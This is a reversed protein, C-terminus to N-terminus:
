DDEEEGRKGKKKGLFQSVGKFLINATRVNRATTKSREFNPINYPSTDVEMTLLGSEENIGLLGEDASGYLIPRNSSFLDVAFVYVRVSNFAASKFANGLDENALQHIRECFTEDEFKWRMRLVWRYYCTGRYMWWDNISGQLTTFASGKIILSQIAGFTDVIRNESSSEEQDKSSLGSIAGTVFQWNSASVNLPKNFGVRPQLLIYVDTPVRPDEGQSFVSGCLHKFLGYSSDENPCSYKFQVTAWPLPHGFRDKNWLSLYTVNVDIEMEPFTTKWLMYRKYLNWKSVTSREREHEAEWAERLKSHAEEMLSLWSCVQPGTIFPDLIEGGEPTSGPKPTVVLNGPLGLRCGDAAMSWMGQRLVDRRHVQTGDPTYVGVEGAAFSAFGALLAVVFVCLPSNSSSM